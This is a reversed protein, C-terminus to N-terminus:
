VSLFFDLALYQRKEESSSICLLAYECHAIIYKLPQLATDLIAYSKGSFTLVIKLRKEFIVLKQCFM